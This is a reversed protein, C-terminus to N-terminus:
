SKNGDNDNNNMIITMMTMTVKDNNNDDDDDFNNINFNNNNNLDAEVIEDNNPTSKTIDQLHIAVTEKALVLDAIEFSSSDGPVNQNQEEERFEIFLPLPEVVQSTPEQTRSLGAVLLTQIFFSFTQLPSQRHQSRLSSQHNYNQRQHEQSRLGEDQKSASWAVSYVSDDNDNNNMIITMMTMTVKDNNNDDNGDDNNDNDDNENNNNINNDDGFNNINFNNNNNLDAEVIEDNNPTSKTIDQLHIAVTEKALVLDAIEFSSSDGPVNQNQEEERFEIFLPLPEVVQSTPEQTRSLGAVVEDQKSASWAVSYVAPIDQYVPRFNIFGVGIPYWIPTTDTGDSRDDDDYQFEASSISVISQLNLNDGLSAFQHTTVLTLLNDEHTQSTSSHKDYIAFGPLVSEDLGLQRAQRLIFKGSNIQYNEQFDAVEISPTIVTLQAERLRRITLKGSIRLREQHEEDLLHTRHLGAANLTLLIEEESSNPSKKNNPNPNNEFGFSYYTVM